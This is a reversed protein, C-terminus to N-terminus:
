YRKGFDYRLTVAWTTGDDNDSVDIGGAFAPTFYYRGGISLTTDDIGNGLDIYKVGGTVELNQAVMGRLGVQLGYGSETASVNAVEAELREYSLGSVLDLRPNLAWHFGVGATFQNSDISTNEYSLDNLSAFGFVNRNFEVSGGIAFGDADVSTGELDSSLYSGELVNYSFGEAAMAQGALGLAMVAGLALHKRM